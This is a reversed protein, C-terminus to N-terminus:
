ARVRIVSVFESRNLSSSANSKTCPRPIIASSWARGLWVSAGSSCPYRCAFANEVSQIAPKCSHCSMSSRCPVVPSRNSRGSQTVLVRQRMRARLGNETVVDVSCQLVDQLDMLLGGLDFLSRGPDLDILIDVDSAADDEGRATSGFVRVNYAGYHRAIRLIEARHARIEQLNV